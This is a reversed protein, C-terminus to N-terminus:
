LGARTRLPSMVSVPDGKGGEAFMEQASEQAPSETSPFLESMTGAEELGWELPPLFYVGAARLGISPRSGQLAAARSLCQYLLQAERLM